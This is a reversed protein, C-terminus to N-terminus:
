ERRKYIVVLLIMVIIAGVIIPIEFGPTSESSGGGVEVTKTVENNNENTESIDDEPDIVVKIEHKGSTDPEWEVSVINTKGRSITETLTAIHESDDYFEIEVQYSSWRKGGGIIKANITTNTGTQPDDTFTISSSGASFDVETHPTTIHVEEERKWSNFSRDRATVKVPYSGGESVTYDWEWQYEVTAEDLFEESLFRLTGHDSKATAYNFDEVGFACKITATVIMNNTVKNEEGTIETVQMSNTTFSFQTPTNFGGFLLSVNKGGSGLPPPTYWQPDNHQLTLRLGIIDSNNLEVPTTINVPISIYMTEASENLDQAETTMTTSVDEGNVTLYGSFRVQQLTGKAFLIFWVTGQINMSHVIPETVWEGVPIPTLPYDTIETELVHHEEQDYDMTTNATANGPDGHLYMFVDNYDEEHNDGEVEFSAFSGIFFSFIIVYVTIVRIKPGM